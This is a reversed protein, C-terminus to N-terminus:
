LTHNQAQCLSVPPEAYYCGMSNVGCLYGLCPKPIHKQGAKRDLCLKPEEAM